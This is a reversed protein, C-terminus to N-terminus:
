GKYNYRNMENLLVRKIQTFENGTLLQAKFLEEAEIIMLQLDSQRNGTYIFTGYTKLLQQVDYM